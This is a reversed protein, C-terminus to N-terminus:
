DSTSDKSGRNRYFFVIAPLTLALLYYFYVDTKYYGDEPKLLMVIFIYDLIVAIVSWVVGTIAAGKLTESKIYKLLVWITIVTAIPTIIWGIQGTPVLPYLIFGLIYGILWLILGWKLVKFIFTKNM